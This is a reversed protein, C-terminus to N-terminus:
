HGGPEPIDRGIRSALQKRAFDWLRERQSERLRVKLNRELDDLMTTFNESPGGPWTAALEFAQALITTEDKASRVSPGPHKSNEVLEEEREIDTETEPALPKSASFLVFGAHNLSTLQVYSVRGQVYRQLNKVRLACNRDAYALWIGHLLGRAAFSLSLYEDKKLLETYAKIWPPNRTKYHQFKHWNPVVIWDDPEPDALEWDM